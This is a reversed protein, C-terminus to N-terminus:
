SALVSKALIQALTLVVLGGEARQPANPRGQAKGFPPKERRETPADKKKLEMLYHPKVDVSIQKIAPRTAAGTCKLIWLYILFGCEYKNCGKPNALACECQPGIM